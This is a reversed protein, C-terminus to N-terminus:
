IIISSFKQNSTERTEFNEFGNTSVKSTQSSKLNQKQHVNQSLKSTFQLKPQNAIPKPASQYHNANPPFPREYPKNNMNMGYFYPKVQRLNPDCRSNSSIQESYHDVRTPIDNSAKMKHNINDNTHSSTSVIHATQPRPLGSMQTTYKISTGYSPERFQRAKCSENSAMTKTKTDSKYSDNGNLRDSILSSTNKLLKNRHNVNSNKTIPVPPTPTRSKAATSVKPISTQPRGISTSSSTSKLSSKSLNLSCDSSISTTSSNDFIMVRNVDVSAEYRRTKYKNLVLEESRKPVVKNTAMAKSSPVPIKNRIPQSSMKAKNDNVPSFSINEFSSSLQSFDSERNSRLRDEIQSGNLGVIPKVKPDIPIQSLDSKSGLGSYCTGM